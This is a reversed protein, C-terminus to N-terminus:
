LATSWLDTPANMARALQRALGALEGAVEHNRPRDTDADFNDGFRPVSLSAVLEASFYRASAVAAALVSAGGGAGPSAALFVAPKDQFVARDVRSTWDVLNKWAATFSGNHEAFAIVLADAEGIKRYFARAAAPQGLEAERDASFIPMEYDNIDVVEVRAGPVQRATYAALQRNISNRSNSAAIALINM